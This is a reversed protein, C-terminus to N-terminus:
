GAAGSISDGASPMEPFIGIGYGAKILTLSAQLNESYYVSAPSFQRSLRSQIGAIQSPIEYSNCVVFKESLLDAGSVVNKQCFPHNAPVAACVRIQELEHYALNDRQPVDDKFAFLIDIESHILMNLIMRSPIIRLFPHVEPIQKQVRSLLQTMLSLDADSVCGISIIQINEESHSSIKQSTLQLKTLIEKADNLFVTGAPTLSVTRTSRHLLRADLETELARIQRSVASTTMNLTEAARAFNLNEAVQIFSELQQTTM